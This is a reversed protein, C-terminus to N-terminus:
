DVRGRLARCLDHCLQATCRFTEIWAGAYPAVEVTRLRIMAISTEIWAGAYPAVGQV